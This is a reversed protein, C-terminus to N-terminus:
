EVAAAEVAAAAAAPQMALVAPYAGLSAKLADLDPADAEEVALRPAPAGALDVAADAAAATPDHQRGADAGKNGGKKPSGAGLPPLLHAGAEVHPHAHAVHQQQQKGGGAAAAAAAAGDGSPAAAAGSAAGGDAAPGKLPSVRVSLRRRAASLPWFYEDYLRRVEDLGATRLAAAEQERAAFDCRGSWIADWARDGEQGLMADKTLKNAILAARHREFEDAPLRQLHERFAAM